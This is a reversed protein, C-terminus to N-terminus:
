LVGRASLEALVKRRKFFGASALKDLAARRERVTSALIMQRM